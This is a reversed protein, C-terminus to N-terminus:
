TPKHKQKACQTRYPLLEQPYHTWTGTECVTDPLTPTGSSLSDLASVRPTWGPYRLATRASPGKGIVEAPDSHTVVFVGPTTRFNPRGEKALFSRTRCRIPLLNYYTFCKGKLTGVPVVIPSRLGKSPSGDMGQGSDVGQPLERTM